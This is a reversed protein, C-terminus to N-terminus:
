QVLPIHYYEQPPTNTLDRTRLRYITGSPEFLEPTANMNWAATGLNTFSQFEFFQDPQGGFLFPAYASVIANTTAPSNTAVGYHYALFDVPTPWRDWWTVNTPRCPPLTGDSQNAPLARLSGDSSEDRM